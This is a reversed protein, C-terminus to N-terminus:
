VVSEPDVGQRRLMWDATIAKHFGPEPAFRDRPTPAITVRVDPSLIVGPPVHVAYAQKTDAQRGGSAQRRARRRLNSQRSACTKRARKREAVEACIREHEAKAQEACLYYRQWSRPGAAFILGIERLRVVMSTKPTLNCDRRIEAFTAGPRKALYALIISQAGNHATM